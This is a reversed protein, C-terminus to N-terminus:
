DCRLYHLFITKIKDIDSHVITVDSTNAIFTQPINHGLFPNIVDLFYTQYLKIDLCCHKGYESRKVRNKLGYANDVQISRVIM